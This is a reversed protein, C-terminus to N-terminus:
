AIQTKDVPRADRKDVAHDAGNATTRLETPIVSNTTQDWDANVNTHDVKQHQARWWIYFSLGALVTFILLTGVLPTSVETVGHCLWFTLAGVIGAAPLTVLWAVAM